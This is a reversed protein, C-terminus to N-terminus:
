PHLCGANLPKLLNDNKAIYPIIEKQDWIHNGSSVVHVGIKFLENCVDPTIGYGDSVNEGNAIVFHINYKNCINRLNKKLFYFSNIGVLDGLFLINM